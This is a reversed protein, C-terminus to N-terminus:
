LVVLCESLRHADTDSLGSSMAGRILEVAGSFDEPLAPLAAVAETALVWRITVTLLYTDGVALASEVLYGELAAFDSEYAARIADAPLGVALRRKAEDMLHEAASRRARLFERLELGDLRHRVADELDLDRPVSLHRLHSVSPWRDAVEDALSAEFADLMRSRMSVILEAADAVEDEDSGFNAVAGVVAEASQFFQRQPARPAINIREWVVSEVVAVDAGLACAIASLVQVPQGHGLDAFSRSARELTQANAVCRSYFEEAASEKVGPM